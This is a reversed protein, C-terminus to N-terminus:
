QLLVCIFSANPRQSINLPQQPFKKLNPNHFNQALICKLIYYRFEQHILWIYHRSDEQKHPCIRVTYELSARQAVSQSHHPSGYLSLLSSNDEFLASGELKQPLLACVAELSYAIQGGINLDSTLGTTPIYLVSTSELMYERIQPFFSKAIWREKKIHIM